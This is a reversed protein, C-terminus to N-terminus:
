KQKNQKEEEKWEKTVCRECIWRDQSYYEAGNFPNDCKVCKSNATLQKIKM